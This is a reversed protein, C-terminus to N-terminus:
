RPSPFAMPPLRSTLWARVRVAASLAPVTSLGCLMTTVASVAFMAPLAWRNKTNMYGVAFQGVAYM